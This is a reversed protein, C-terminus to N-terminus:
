IIRKNGCFNYAAKTSAWCGCSQPISATPQAASQEVMITLRKNLREDKVKAAMTEAEMWSEPKPAAQQTTEEQAIQKTASAELESEQKTAPEEPKSEQETKSHQMQRSERRPRRMPRGSKRPKQQPEKPAEVSPQWGIAKMAGGGAMSAVAVVIGLAVRGMQTVSM